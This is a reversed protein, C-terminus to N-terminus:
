SAASEVYMISIIVFIYTQITGFIVDFFGHLLAPIGFQVFLPTLSYYLTLIITGSLMNGFLRFSLSVPKALEGILNLPFFVFHPNFFSKLYQGKQHKFGMIIMLSFSAFALAFTTAWDATPARLGFISFMSSSFIFVFVMFYWPAIYSLNKGLANTAFNDFVEVIIEVVNQFGTPVLKFSKLKIRAIIALAIIISMIIWTNFITETIWIETGAVDLVWLNDINLNM